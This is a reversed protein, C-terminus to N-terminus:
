IGIIKQVKNKTKEFLMGRGTPQKRMKSKANKIPSKISRGLANFVKTDTEGTLPTLANRESFPLVSDAPDPVRTPPPNTFIKSPERSLLTNGDELKWFPAKQDWFEPQSCGICVHGAKMPFNESDNFKATPCINKTSPGKCGKFKLCHPPMNTESYSNDRYESLYPCQLHVAAQYAFKPRMYADTPPLEGKLLLYAVTGVFAVPNPPCGPVNLVPPLATPANPDYLAAIVGKAGTPNPAASPIGGFSACAGIAIIYKAKPCIEQAIKLMTKTGVMGYVGNDATPIAGEVVCIFNGSNDQALKALDDHASLVLPDATSSSTGVGAMLTEHYDLSVTNAVLDDFYDIKAGTLALSNFYPHATATNSNKLDMAKNDIIQLLSATNFTRLVAESCATCESFHLWAIKPRAPSTLAAAVKSGMSPGLGITAAVMSCFKLFDRRSIDIDSDEMPQPLHDDM